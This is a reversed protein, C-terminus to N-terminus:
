LDQRRDQTGNAKGQSPPDGTLIVGIETIKADHGWKAFGHHGSALPESPVLNPLPELSNISSSCLTLQRTGEEPHDPDPTSKLTKWGLILKPQFLRNEAVLEWPIIAPGKRQSLPSNPGAM